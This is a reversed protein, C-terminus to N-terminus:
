LVNSLIHPVYDGAENRRMSTSKFSLQSRLVHHVHHVKHVVLVIRIRKAVVRKAVVCDPM